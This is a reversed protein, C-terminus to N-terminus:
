NNAGVGLCYLILYANMELPNETGQIIYNSANPGTIRKQASFVPNYRITLKLYTQTSDLGARIVEDSKASEIIARATVPPNGPAFTEETGAVGVVNAPELLTIKHRMRGPNVGLKNLEGRSEM